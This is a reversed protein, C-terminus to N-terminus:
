ALTSMMMTAAQPSRAPSTTSVSRSNGSSVSGRVPRRRLVERITATLYEDSDDAEVEERLRELVRRKTAVDLLQVYGTDMNVAPKLGEAATRAVHSEFEPWSIHGSADYPLLITVQDSFPRGHPGFEMTAGALRAALDWAEISKRDRELARTLQERAGATDGVSLAREASALAHALVDLLARDQIGDRM